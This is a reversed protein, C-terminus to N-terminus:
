VIGKNDYKLAGWDDDKRTLGGAFLKTADYQLADHPHSYANKEPKEHYKEASTQMRQYRYGGMFGRRLLKCKPDIQFGPKGSIMTNLPKKISEIRIAETQEGPMINIGKAKLIQFCTKEDTQARQAGAPDGFDDFTHGQYDQACHRLVDESFREIGMSDSTMEDFVIWVGSPLMQSFTCAPTLGFDWGRRIPKGTIPSCPKCHISDSYEPYVPRGEIIFGYEGGIYVKVFESDKGQALNTYYNPPLNGMNEANDALGSPQKFIAANDPRAEEFYRYWGSMDDPPNTDMIIGFWTAGGDSKKPYRGVRGQLADIISWPVERAENVWAGTLELSLLNRIHDPRDLARFMVEIECGPIATIHYDKDTARWEGFHEPPLWEHFTKITTDRLQGYTNRIVAWRTKRLGQENPVQQQARKIIEIVCGSSKGSGFPGMLGRVFAPSESFAKITPADRYSYRIDM